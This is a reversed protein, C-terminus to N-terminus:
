SSQKTENEIKEPNQDVETRKTEIIGLQPIFWSTKSRYRSNLKPNSGNTEKRDTYIKKRIRKTESKLRL